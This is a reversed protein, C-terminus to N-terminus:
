ESYDDSSDVNDEINFLYFFYRRCRRRWLDGIENTSHPSHPFIFTTCTCCAKQQLTKVYDALRSRSIKMNSTRVVVPARLM